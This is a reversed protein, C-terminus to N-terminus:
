YMESQLRAYREEHQKLGRRQRLQNSRKGRVGFYVYDSQDIKWVAM